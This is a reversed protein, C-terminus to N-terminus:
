CRFYLFQLWFYPFGTCHLFKIGYFFSLIDEYKYVM